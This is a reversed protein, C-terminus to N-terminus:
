QSYLPLNYNDYCKRIIDEEQLIIKQYKIDIMEETDLGKDDIINNSSTSSIGATMNM